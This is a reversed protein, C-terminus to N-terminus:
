KFYNRLRLNESVPQQQQTQPQQGKNNDMIYKLLPSFDKIKEQKVYDGTGMPSFWVREITNGNKNMQAHIIFPENGWKTDTSISVSNYKPANNEFGTFNVMKTKDKFFTGIPFEMSNENLMTEEKIIQKVISRLENLTIKTTAM